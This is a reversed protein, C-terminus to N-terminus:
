LQHSVWGFGHQCQEHADQCEDVWKRANGVFIQDSFDKTPPRGQVFFSVPDGPFSDIMCLGYDYSRRSRGEFAALSFECSRFLKQSEDTPYEPQTSYPFDIILGELAIREFPHKTPRNEKHVIDGSANARFRVKRHWGTEPFFGYVNDDAFELVHACLSCGRAKSVELEQRNSHEYGHKHLLAQLGELTRTIKQCKACCELDTKDRSNV